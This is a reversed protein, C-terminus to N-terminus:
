SVLVKCKVPLKTAGTKLAKLALEFVEINDIEYIITGVNIKCVWHDRKGKGGGMRAGLSKKTVPLNPQVRSYTKGGVAKIMRQIAQQGAKLQKPTIYGAEVSKLGYAGIELENQRVRNIKNKFYKIHKLQPFNM